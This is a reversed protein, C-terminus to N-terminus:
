WFAKLHEAMARDDEDIHKALWEIVLLKISDLTENDVTKKQLALSIDYIQNVLYTHKQRHEKFGSYHANIMAAEEISFHESVYSVLFSFGEKIARDDTTDLSLIEGVKAYINKHQQDIEEIGTALGEDWWLM